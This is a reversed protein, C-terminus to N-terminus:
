RACCNWRNRARRPPPSTAQHALIADAIQQGIARIPNLAGRPNQFIMSMAAGHLARLDASTM